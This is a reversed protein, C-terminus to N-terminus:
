YISPKKDLNDLLDDMKNAIERDVSQLAHAYIDATTSTKAHGLRSSVSKMSIGQNLAYTASMHRFSHPSIHPLHHKQIFRKLWTNFNDPNMARGDWTTFLRNCDHWKDGLNESEREQQEHYDKLLNMVALPVAIRRNSLETKPEKTILGKGVIYLSSQEISLTKEKFNIHRWELGFMESRRLGTTLALLVMLRYRISEIKLLDLFLALQEEDYIPIKRSKPKPMDVDQCPNSSILKWKVAKNLMSRLLSLNMEVSRLSLTGTRGDLREWGILLQKFQLIHTPKIKSLKLYGLTPLIRTKLIGLHRELTREALSNNAHKEAWYEAFESLTMNSTNAIGGNEVEAIYLVLKKEADKDSRAEVTIRHRIQKGKSDYGSYATLLYKGNPQKKISGAM